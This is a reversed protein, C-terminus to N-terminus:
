KNPNTIRGTFLATSIDKDVITLIFPRNFKIRPPLSLKTIGIGTAATAETGEEDVNLVAKHVAKSVILNSEGRIGSLDARDSFVDTIGLPQLEKLLDLEASISFKPISLLIDRSTMQKTWAESVNQLAKEVDHLKGADPLIFIASTNGKYPVHVVTCGIEQIFAVQYKGQRNMMPVKVVTNEDVHFDEEKTHNVNFSNEWSGKFFITNVIVLVTLPDLSDLLEKIKGNTKKEVFSNIQEVAEKIKQFDTSIVESHYLNKADDLFKDLLKQKNDIFLANAIDLQLDGKPQNIIHLLQQFGKHIDEESVLSTNFGFGERIQSLTNSKAGISLLSFAISISLPSFFLNDHPYAAALHSYFKYSFKINAPVVQLFAKAESAHHNHDDDDDDHPGGHHCCVLTCLLAQSLCVFLFLRM